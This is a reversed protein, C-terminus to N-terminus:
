TPATTAPKSTRTSLLHSAVATHPGPPCGLLGLKRVKPVEQGSAVARVPDGADGSQGPDFDHGAYAVAGKRKRGSGGPAPPSAARARPMEEVVQHSWSARRTSLRWGPARQSPLWALPSRPRTGPKCRSCRTAM